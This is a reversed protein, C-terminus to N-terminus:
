RGSPKWEGSQGLAHRVANFNAAQEDMAQLTWEIDSNFAATRAEMDGEPYLSTTTVSVHLSSYTGPQACVMKMSTTIPVLSDPGGQYVQAEGTVPQMVRKVKNGEMVAATACRGATAKPPIKLM